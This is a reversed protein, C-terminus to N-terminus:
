MPKAFPDASLIKVAWRKVPEIVGASFHPLIAARHGQGHSQDTRQFFIPPCFIQHTPQPLAVDSQQRV